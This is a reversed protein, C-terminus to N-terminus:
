SENENVEEFEIWAVYKPNIYNVKNNIDTIRILQYYDQTVNDLERKFDDENVIAYISKSCGNMQIFVKKNM